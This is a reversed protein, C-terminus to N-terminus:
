AAKRPKLLRTVDELRVLKVRKDLPDLEFPIIGESLLDAMKQKSIGLMKQAETAKIRANEVEM